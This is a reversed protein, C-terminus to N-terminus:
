RFFRRRDNNSGHWSYDDSNQDEKDNVIDIMTMLSLILASDVGEQIYLRYHDPLWQSHDQWLAGANIDQETYAVPPLNANYGNENRWCKYSWGLYSGVCYYKLDGGSERGRYISWADRAGLVGRGIFAKNVTYLITGTNDPPHIRFSDRLSFPNMVNKSNRIMFRQKWGMDHVRVTQYGYLNSAWSGTLRAIPQNNSWWRYENTEVWSVKERCMFMWSNGAPPVLEPWLPMASNAQNIEIAAFSNNTDNSRRDGIVVTDNTDDSRSDGIVALSDKKRPAVRFGAVIGSLSLWVLVAFTRRM